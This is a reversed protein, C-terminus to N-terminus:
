ADYLIFKRKLMKVKKERMIKYKEKVEIFISAILSEDNSIM